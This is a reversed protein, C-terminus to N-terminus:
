SIALRCEVLFDEADQTGYGAVDISGDSSLAHGLVPMTSVVQWSDDLISQDVAGSVAMVQKSSPKITQRWHHLLQAEFLNAMRTAKYANTSLFWVNDVYSAVALTVGHQCWALNTLSPLIARITAQVPVRGLQGAVRSGTLGGLCRNAIIATASRIKLVIPPLLQHRLCAAALAIDCGNSVLWQFILVCQISDYHQRVDEQAIAGESHFDLSKEVYLSLGSVIDM